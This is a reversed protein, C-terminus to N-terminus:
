HRSRWRVRRNEVDTCTSGEFLRTEGTLVSRLTQSLLPEHMERPRVLNEWCRVGIKGTNRIEYQEDDIRRCESCRKAVLRRRRELRCGGLGTVSLEIWVAIARQLQAGDHIHDIKRVEISHSRVDVGDGYQSM